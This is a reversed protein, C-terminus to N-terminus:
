YGPFYDTTIKKKSVGLGLIMKETSQVMGTPGSIYFQKNIYDSIYKKIIEPTFHGIEGNWDKPLNSSDTLTYLTRIGNPIAKQFVDAFAIEGVSRNSYLLIISVRINSDIIHQIISRFPTIGIGGAIFVMSTNLNKPLVFDGTLSTAIIEKGSELSALTKKYSSSPDHFRVAIQLDEKPSSSISFYRRNGRSDSHKHPLTWEMYQGPVFAFNNVKGFNFVMTNQAILYKEKLKLALRYKPSVIYSFINGISLALEPTLAFGFLRLQPTSYLIVVLTAYIAQLKKKPPSTIPETLMVFAFFFVASSILGRQWTIMVASISGNHVFASIGILLIYVLLFVSVMQARRIKRVILLGGLFVFPFMYTSGVWWTAVHESSLLSIAVLGGAAPNFIHKKDITPLYKIGMALVSAAMFFLLNTPFKVPVILVLILATIFVSEINTTAKFIKAFVYNAMYCFVISVVTEIFIDIPSYASLKFIGLIITVIVLYILYYLTLRYMTIKNLLDDIIPIKM